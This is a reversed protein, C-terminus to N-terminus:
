LQPTSRHPPPWPTHTRRRAHPSVAPVAARRGRAAARREARNTLADRVADPGAAAIVAAAVATEIENARLSGAAIARLRGVLRDDQEDRALGEVALVEFTGLLELADRVVDRLRREATLGQADARRHEIALVVDAAADVEAIALPGDSGRPQVALQRRRHWPADARPPPGALAATSAPRRAFASLGGARRATAASM